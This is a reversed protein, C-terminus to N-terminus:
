RGGAAPGPRSSDNYIIIIIIIISRHATTLLVKKPTCSLRNSAIGQCAWGCVAIDCAVLAAMGSNDQSYDQKVGSQLQM